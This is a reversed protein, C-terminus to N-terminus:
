RGGGAWAEAWATFPPGAARLAALAAAPPAQGRRRGEDLQVALAAAERLRAPEGVRRREVLRLEYAVSRSRFGAPPPLEERLVFRVEAHTPLGRWTDFRYTAALGRVQRFRGSAPDIWEVGTPLQCRFEPRASASLRRVEARLTRKSEPLIGWVIGTRWEHEQGAPLPLLNFDFGACHPGAPGPRGDAGILRLAGDVPLYALHVTAPAPASLWAVAEREPGLGLLTLTYRREAEAAGEAATGEGERTRVTLEWTVAWGPEIVFRCPRLALAFLLVGSSALVACLLLTAWWGARRRTRPPM